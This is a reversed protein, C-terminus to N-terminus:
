GIVIIAKAIGVCWGFFPSERVTRKEGAFSPRGESFVKVVAVIFAVFYVDEGARGARAGM